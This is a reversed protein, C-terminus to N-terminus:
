SKLRQKEQRNKIFEIEDFNDDLLFFGKLLSKELDKPLDKKKSIFSELCDYEVNTMIALSNSLSNYAYVKSGNKVFFSYRSQKM